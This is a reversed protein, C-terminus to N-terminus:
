ARWLGHRPYPTGLYWQVGFSHEVQRLTFSSGNLWRTRWERGKLAERDRLQVFCADADDNDAPTCGVDGQYYQHEIAQLVDAPTATSGAYYREVMSAQGRFEREEGVALESLAGEYDANVLTASNPHLNPGRGGNNSGMSNIAWYWGAIDGASAPMMGPIQTGRVIDYSQGNLILSFYNKADGDRRNRAISGTDLSWDKGVWTIAM